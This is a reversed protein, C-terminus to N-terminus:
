DTIHQVGQRGLQERRHGDLCNNDLNLGASGDGSMGTSKEQIWRVVEECSAICHHGNLKLRYAPKGQKVQSEDEVAAHTVKISGKRLTVNLAKLLHPFRDRNLRCKYDNVWVYFSYFPFEGPGYFTYGVHESNRVPVKKLVRRVFNVADEDECYFRIGGDILTFKEVLYIVEDDEFDVEM